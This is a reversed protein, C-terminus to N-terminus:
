ISKYVNESSYMMQFKLDEVSKSAVFKIDRNKNVNEDMLGMKVSDKKLKPDFDSMIQFQRELESQGSM